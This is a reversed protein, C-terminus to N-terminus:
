KLWEKMECWAYVALMAQILVVPDNSRLERLNGRQCHYRAVVWDVVALDRQAFFANSYAQGRDTYTEEQWDYYFYLKTNDPRLFGPILKTYNKGKIEVDEVKEFALGYKEM